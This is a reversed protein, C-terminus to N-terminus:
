LMLLQHLRVEWLEVFESLEAVQLVEHERDGMDTESGCVVAVVKYAEVM